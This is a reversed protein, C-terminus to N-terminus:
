SGYNFLETLTISTTNIFDKKIRSFEEMDLSVPKLNIGQAGIREFLAKRPSNTFLQAQNGYALSAVCAHVRDSYTCGANAYLSLYDEPVDSILTSRKKRRKRIIPGWLDHHAYIINRKSKIIQSEVRFFDFTVADFDMDITPPKFYEPVFFGCDIGLSINKIKDKFLEYTDLDRTIIASNALKNFFDSFVKTERSTYQSAGAGLGLISVGRRNAELITPGNNIVFEECMSMGAFVLLDFKGLQAIELSNGNVPNWRPFLKRTIGLLIGSRFFSSNNFMWHVAGGTRTIEARPLVKRIVAEAGFDFFANGINQPWSGAYM